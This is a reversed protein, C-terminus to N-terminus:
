HSNLSSNTALAVRISSLFVDQTRLLVLKNKNTKLCYTIVQTVDLSFMVTGESIDKTSFYM